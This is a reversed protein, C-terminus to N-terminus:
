RAIHLPRLVFRRITGAIWKWHLVLHLGVLVWMIDSVQSHLGEWFPNRSARLGIFVLVSQSEMIGSLLLGSFSIFLAINLAYNLRSQHLLKQFFRETVATIWRWHFLLHLFFIAGLAMSLWEHIAVGTSEPDMAIIFGSLFVADLILNNKANAQLKRM